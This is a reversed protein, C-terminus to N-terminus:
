KRLKKPTNRNAALIMKSIDQIPVCLDMSEKRIRRYAETETLGLTEMLLSKAREITKRVELETELQTIRSKYGDILAVTRLSFAITRYLEEPRVPKVLYAHLQRDMLKIYFDSCPRTIMFIVSSLGGKEIIDAVDFANQGWLGTDLLVLDPYVTGATRIAGSGDSASYTRFGKMLLLRDINKRATENSDAILIRRDKM